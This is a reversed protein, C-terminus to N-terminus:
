VLSAVLLLLYLPVVFRFIEWLDMALMRWFQLRWIPRTMHQIWAHWNKTHRTNNGVVGMGVPLSWPSLPRQFPPSDSGRRINKEDLDLDLDLDALDVPSIMQSLEQQKQSRPASRQAVSKQGQGQLPHPTSLSRAVKLRPPMRRWRILLPDSPRSQLFWYFRLVVLWALTLGLLVIYGSYISLQRPMVCEEYAFTPSDLAMSSALTTETDRGLVTGVGDAGLIATGNHLQRAVNEPMNPTVSKPLKEPNFLSLVVFAPQKSGQAFSFTPVTVEPTLKDDLSHVIECWDHDDGSFIMDPQINHLIERSLSANVMNQYQEGNRDLILQGSERAEGCFTTDLRFLPVHTFLIRPLSPTEQGLRTMFERSEKQISTLNASLALTDLIVLSHNGVNIEYNISGFEQKYRRVAKRVITDGFGVEHNGAVYLRVSRGNSRIAVREGSDSPVEMIQQFHGTIDEDAKYNQESEDQGHYTSNHQSDSDPSLPSSSGEGVAKGELKHGHIEVKRELDEADMLLPRLNWATRGSDFVNELFRNRNKEFTREDMTERGGDMLDGLFLVADPQLNQHLRAFSRRM